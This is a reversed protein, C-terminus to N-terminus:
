AAAEALTAPAVTAPLKAKAADLSVVPGGSMVTPDNAAMGKLAGLLLKGATLVSPLDIGAAHLVSSLYSEGVTLMPGVEPHDAHWQTADREVSVVDHYVVAAAHDAAALIETLVGVAREKEFFNIRAEDM